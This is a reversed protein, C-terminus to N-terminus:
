GTLTVAASSIANDLTVKILGNWTLTSVFQEVAAVSAIGRRSLWNDVLGSAPQAGSRRLDPRLNFRRPM